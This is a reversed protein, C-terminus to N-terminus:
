ACEGQSWGKIGASCAGCSNGYTVGNSGCVPDYQLTCIQAQSKEVTCVHDLTKEIASEDGGCAGTNYADVQASCASCGNSYTKGDDGCVPRYDRTCIQSEKQAQTCVVDFESPTAPNPEGVAVGNNEKTEDDSTSESCGALVFLLTLCLGFIIFRKKM